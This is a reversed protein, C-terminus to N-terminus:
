VRFWTGALRCTHADTMKMVSINLSIGPMHRESQRTRDTERKQARAAKGKSRMSGSGNWREKKRGFELM